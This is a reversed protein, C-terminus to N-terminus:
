SNLRRARGRTAARGAAPRRVRSRACNRSSPSTAPTAKRAAPSSVFVQIVEAEVAAAYGLSGSALGGTVTAHSGILGPANPM